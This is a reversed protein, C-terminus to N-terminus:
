VTIHGGTNAVLYTLKCGVEAGHLLHKSGAFFNIELVSHLQKHGMGIHWSVKRFVCSLVPGQLLM